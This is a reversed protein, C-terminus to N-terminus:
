KVAALACQDDQAASGGGVGVAGGNPLPQGGQRYLPGSGVPWTSAFYAETPNTPYNTELVSSAAHFGASARAKGLAGPIAAPVTLGDMRAYAVLQGASDVM